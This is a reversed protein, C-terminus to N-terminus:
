FTGINFEELIHTNEFGYQITNVEKEHHYYEMLSVM